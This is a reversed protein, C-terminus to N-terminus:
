AQVQLCGNGTFPLLRAIITYRYGPEMTLGDVLCNTVPCPVFGPVGVLGWPIIEIQVAVRCTHLEANLDGNLRRVSERAHLRMEEPDSAPQGKMGLTQHLMSVGTNVEAVVRQFDRLDIDPHPSRVKLTM